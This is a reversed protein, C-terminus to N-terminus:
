AHIKVARGKIQNSSAHAHATLAEKIKRKQKLNLKKSKM